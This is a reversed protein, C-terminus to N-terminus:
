LSMSADVSTSPAGHDQGAYHLVVRGKVNHIQILGAQALSYISDIIEKIGMSDFLQQVLTDRDITGHRRVVGLVAENSKSEQSKGMLSFVKPMDTEVTKMLKDARDLDEPLIFPDDRMSAALIISLKHVHTQKRAWYGGWTNEDLHKPRAGNNHKAYWEKGYEKAEPTLVYEGVLQSIVELDHVLDARLAEFEAPIIEDKPYAILKRKKEAYVFICRSTFGGGIMYQPFNGALWSPTTCAILNIWPNVIIDSGQTKTMKEWAGKQGDWLSVLVDVMERDQPNLFTGFESSVITLASMPMFASSDPLPFEETSSALAQTLAQWTVVDPGFRIDSLQRLLRMGTNVTTSKAVVGPPAVFIIYFNPTWDFYGMDIWVRRRLAGAIVSVGTWFHFKDPAEASKSYELYSTLWDELKRM